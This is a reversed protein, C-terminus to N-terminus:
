PACQRQYDPSGAVYAAIGGARVLRALRDHNRGHEGQSRWGEPLASWTGAEWTYAAAEEALCAAPDEGHAAV